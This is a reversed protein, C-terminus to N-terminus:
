AAPLPARPRPALLSRHRALWALSALAALFATWAGAGGPGTAGWLAAATAAALLRGAEARFAWPRREFLAGIVVLSAVIAATAALMLGRPVSEQRFLLLAAALLVAVFQAFAYAGVGAPVPTEFRRQTRRDVEPAPQFGGLEAPQWGPRAVLVRLKDRLRRAGRAKQAMEVWYHVNAWVPNWSRLPRTIGYAPEEEEEKFSGFLRDWVILTGAYNRDIYKPNCAHHVRHHSPTNLVWELPGLKGIVRTHIWFQYLTDFAACALFVV